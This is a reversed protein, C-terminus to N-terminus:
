LSPCVCWFPPASAGAPLRARRDPRQRRPRADRLAGAHGSAAFTHRSPRGDSATRPAARPPWSHRRWSPWKSCGSCGTAALQPAMSRWSPWKSCAPARADRAEDRAAHPPAHVAGVRRAHHPRRRAPRAARVRADARAAGQPAGKRAAGEFAGLVQVTSRPSIPSSPPAHSWPCPRETPDSTGLRKERTLPAAGLRWICGSSGATALWPGALVGSQGHEWYKDVIYATQINYYNLTAVFWFLVFLSLTWKGTSAYAPYTLTPYAETTYLQFLFSVGRIPDDFAGVYDASADALQAHAAINEASYAPMVLHCLLAAFFVLGVLLVSFFRVSDKYLEMVATVLRRLTRSRLLVLGGRLARFPRGVLPLLLLDAVHLAIVLVYVQQWRKKMYRRVGMYAMKLGADAVYGGVCVLELAISLPVCRWVVGDATACTRSWWESRATGGFSAAPELLVLLMHMIFCVYLWNAFTESTQVAFCRQVRKSRLSTAARGNELRGELADQVYLSAMRVSHDWYAERSDISM